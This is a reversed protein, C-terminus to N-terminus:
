GGCRPLSLIFGLASVTTPKIADNSWVAGRCFRGDCVDPPAARLMEKVDLSLHVSCSISSPRM